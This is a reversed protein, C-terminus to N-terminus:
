TVNLSCTKKNNNNKRTERERASSAVPPVSNDRQKNTHMEYPNIQINGM